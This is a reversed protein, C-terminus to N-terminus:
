AHRQGSETPKSLVRLLAVIGIVAFVLGLVIWTSTDSTKKANLGSIQFAITDGPKLSGRRYYEIPVGAANTLRSSPEGLGELVGQGHEWFVMLQSTPLTIERAVKTVGRALDLQYSFGVQHEGPPVAMTDYFGERTVIIAEPELYSTETLDRFGEPLMVKLVIPRDQADRESGIVAMDSSNKLQLYETFELADGRLAIMLHHMSVSLKSADNSVDFVQVSTSLEGAAADLSVPGSRFAMNRHKARAVATLDPGTPLNEFVAKGDEGAKAPRVDIQQEGRYLYLMVEDGAVPAGNATNNRVEVTLKAQSMQALGDGPMLTCVAVIAIALHKM